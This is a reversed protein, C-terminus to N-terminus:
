RLQVPEALPRATTLGQENLSALAERCAARMFQTRTCNMERCAKRIAVLEDIKPRFGIPPYM